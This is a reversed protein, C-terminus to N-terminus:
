RVLTFSGKKKFTENNLFTGMITYVYVGESAPQSKFNGDWPQQPNNSYFVEAGWRNFIRFELRIIAGFDVPGYFDNVGDGNPSFINPMHLEFDDRVFVLISATDSCGAADTATVTYTIEERPTTLPTACDTCNLYTAPSWSFSVLATDAGTVEPTLATTSGAFVIIAPPLVVDIAEPAEITFTTTASCGNVDLVIATYDGPALGSFSNGNQYINNSVSYEYPSNGGNAALVVSGDASYYCSTNIIGSAILAISDPQNITFTAIEECNNNDAVTVSYNGSFLGSAVDTASSIPASWNYTYPPIGGNIVAFAIGNNNGYCLNDLTIVQLQTPIPENIEISASDVCGNADTVTVRYNGASINNLNQMASGNNWLFAYPATGSVVSVDISGTNDGGCLVDTKTLSLEPNNNAVLPINEQLVCGNLDTIVVTYIGETLGSINNITSGTSWLYTNPLTGGSVNVSISGNNGGNCQPPTANVSLALPAPENITTSLV